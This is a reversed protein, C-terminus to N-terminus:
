KKKKMEDEYEKRRKKIKPIAAKTIGRAANGSSYPAQGREFVAQSMKIQKSINNQVAEMKFRAAMLRSRNRTM